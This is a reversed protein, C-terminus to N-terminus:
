DRLPAGGGGRGFPNYEYSDQLYEIDKVRSDQKDVIRKNAQEAMQSKLEETYRQKMTLQEQMRLDYPRLNGSKPGAAIIDNGAWQLDPVSQYNQNM